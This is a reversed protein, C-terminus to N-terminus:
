RPVRGIAEIVTEHRNRSADQAVPLRAEVMAYPASAFRAVAEDFREALVISAPDLGTVITLGSPATPITVIRLDPRYHELCPVIKWVDGCWFPAIAEREAAVAVLPLTDHFVVVSDPTCHREVNIFDRLVQEFRHLGDIFALDFPRPGIAGVWLSEAFFADSTAAFVRTDTAFAPLPSQPEPDVGISVTPPQALALTQGYWVGIELYTRPRLAAHLWALHQYYSPGPLVIGALGEYLALHPDIGIARRLLTAAEDARGAAALTNAASCWAGSVRAGIRLATEFDGQRGAVLIRRAMALPHNPEAELLLDYIQAARPWLEAQEFAAGLAMLQQEDLSTGM